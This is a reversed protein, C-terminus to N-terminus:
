ARALLRGERHVMVSIIIPISRWSLRAFEWGPWVHPRTKAAPTGEKSCAGQTTRSCLRVFPM